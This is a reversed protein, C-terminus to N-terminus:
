PNDGKTNLCKELANVHRELLEFYARLDDPSFCCFSRKEAELIRDATRSAAEAGEKTLLIVKSRRDSEDMVLTIWGDAEMKKLASNVSQKPQMLRECLMRQTLSEDSERLFYLIWLVCESIGSEKAAQRYLDDMQKFIRNFRIVQERMWIGGTQEYAGPMITRKRVFTLM